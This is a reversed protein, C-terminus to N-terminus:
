NRVSFGAGAFFDNGARSLKHGARIDFQADNSLLYTFVYHEPRGGAL